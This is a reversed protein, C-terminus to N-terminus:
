AELKMMEEFAAAFVDSIRLIGVINDDRTVLLSLLTGAILKHIATDLNASEAVFEGPSPTQMFEEVKLASATRLNTSTLIQGQSKYSDRLHSIYSDSFNFKKMDELENNFDIKPEIAKLARLQSIKGVVQGNENLVIIARHQYKSETYATRAKELAKLADILPTGVEVTAYESIPVMFDKVIFNEVNDGQCCIFANNLIYGL